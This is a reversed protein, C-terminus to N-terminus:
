ERRHEAVEIRGAVQDANVFRVQGLDDLVHELDIGREAELCCIRAVFVLVVQRDHPLLELGHAQPSGCHGLLRTVLRPQM